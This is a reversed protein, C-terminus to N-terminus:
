PQNNGPRPRSSCWARSFLCLLCLMALVVTLAFSTCASIFSSLVMRQVISLDTLSVTRDQPDVQFADRATLGVTLFLAFSYLALFAIAYLCLTTMSHGRRVLASSSFLGALVGSVGAMAFRQTADGRTVDDFWSHFVVLSVITVLFSIIITWVILPPTSFLLRVLEGLWRRTGFELNSFTRSMVLAFVIMPITQFGILVFDDPFNLEKLAEVFLWVALTVATVFVIVWFLPNHLIINLIRVIAVVVHATFDSVARILNEFFHSM